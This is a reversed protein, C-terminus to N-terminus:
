SHCTPVRVSAKRSGSPAQWFCYVNQSIRINSSLPDTQSELLSSEVLCFGGRSVTLSLATGPPLPLLLCRDAVWLPTPHLSTHFPGFFVAPFTAKAESLGRVVDLAASTRVPFKFWKQPWLSCMGQASNSGSDKM